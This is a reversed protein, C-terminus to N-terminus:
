LHLKPKPLENVTILYSNDALFAYKAGDKQLMHLLIISGTGQCNFLITFHSYEGKRTDVKLDGHHAQYHGPKRFSM